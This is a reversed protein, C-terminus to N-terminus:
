CEGKLINMIMGVVAGSGPPPMLHFTLGNIETTMPVREQVKYNKLDDLTMNGGNDNIDALIDKALEGHYFTLPDNAIIELTKALKENKFTEGAKLWKGDKQLVEKLGPDNKIRDMNKEMNQAVPQPLPFGERALKIAPQFLDKWPLKGYKEHVHHMGKVNGPIGCALGGNVSSSNPQKYMLQYANAPATERYDYIYAKKEAKIYINFFGGGGIGTSHM